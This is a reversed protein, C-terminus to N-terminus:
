GLYICVCLTGRARFVAVDACGGDAYAATAQPLLVPPRVKNTASAADGEEDEDESRDEDDSGAEEADSRKRKSGAGSPATMSSTGALFAAMHQQCYTRVGQVCVFSKLAFTKQGRGSKVPM